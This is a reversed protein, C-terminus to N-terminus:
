RAAMFVARPVRCTWPPAPSPPGESSQRPRRPLREHDPEGRDPRGGRRCSRGRGRGCRGRGSRGERRRHRGCRGRRCRRQDGGSPQGRRLRPPTAVTRMHWPRRHSAQSGRLAGTARALLAQITSGVPEAAAAAAEAAHAAVQTARATAKEAAATAVIVAAEATAAAEAAVEAAADAAIARSCRRGGGPGHLGAATGRRRYGVRSSTCRQEPSGQRACTWRNGLNISRVDRSAADVADDRSKLTGNAM